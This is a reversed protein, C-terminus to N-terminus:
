EVHAIEIDALMYVAQKLLLNSDPMQEVHYVTTKM